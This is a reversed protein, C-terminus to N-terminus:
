SELPIKFITFCHFEDHTYQIKLHHTDCIKKVIALGLGYSKENGKTFRNFITDNGLANPKGTNCIRIENEKLYIYVSGGTINHNIGNSLLNAILIDALQGHMNMEFVGEEEIELTLNKSEFLSAFEETKQKLTTNFSQVKEPIFQQNEIKAILILSQNLSSLRKVADITSVVREFTEKNIEQQLIEELNLLVVSLPTQIEHSANETFEKQALYDAELRKTLSGVVTNLREFEETTTKILQLNENRSFSFSEMIRLNEEFDAWVTKNLRRNILYSIGLTSILLIFFTWAILIMLDDNEVVSHRLRIFYVEDNIEVQNSYELFPELEGDTEDEVFIERFLPRNMSLRSVKKVEVIPFINPTEGTEKVQKIILNEQDYFSEKTEELMIYKLVVFEALSLVLLISTFLWLYNRNIRKLFKM